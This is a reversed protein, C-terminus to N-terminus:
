ASVLDGRNLPEQKVSTALANEGCAKFGAHGATSPILKATVLKSFLVKM